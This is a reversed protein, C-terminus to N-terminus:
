AQLFLKGLHKQEFTKMPSDILVSLERNRNIVPPAEYFIHKLADFKEKKLAASLLKSPDTELLKVLEASSITGQDELPIQVGYM